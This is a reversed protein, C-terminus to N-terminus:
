SLRTVKFTYSGIDILGPAGGSPCRFVPYVYDGATLTFTGSVTNGRYITGGTADIVAATGLLTSANKNLTLWFTSTAQIKIYTYHAEIFYDGSTDIDMCIRSNVTSSSLSTDGGYYDETPTLFAANYSTTSGMNVVSTTISNTNASWIGVSPSTFGGSATLAVWASGTNYNLKNNTSDYVVSGATDPLAEMNTNTMVPPLFAGSDDTDCEINGGTWVNLKLNGNGYNQVIATGNSAVFKATDADASDIITLGAEVLGITNNADKLVIDPTNSEVAIDGCLLTESLHLDKFTASTTGLDCVATTGPKVAIIGSAASGITMHNDTDAVASNGLAIRNLATTSSVNSSSGIMINNSSVGTAVDGALYGLVTNNQGTSNRLAFAGVVTNFSTDADRLALYGVAVNTDAITIGAGAGSGLIVNQDGTTLAAAAGFGAVLNNNGTVSTLASDTAIMNASGGTAPIRFMEAPDSNQEYAVANLTGAGTVTLTDTGAGNQVTFVDDTDAGTGRRINVAGNTTDTLIEPNVTSNNYATQLTSATSTGTLAGFKGANFFTADSTLLNTTGEQVILLGILIGSAAIGPATVFTQTFIDDQAASFSNYINQGLQATINGAPFTYFRQITYKNTGVAAGPYASGDDYINPNIDTLSGSITEDQNQYVFTGAASTDLAPITRINPNHTNTAYNSGYMFCDGVTKTFKLSGLGTFVNGSINLYGISEVLDRLQSIPEVSYDCRVDIANVVTNNLHVVTGVFINDRRNELTPLTGSQLVTGSIDISVFTLIQTAINTVAVDTKGTWSVPTQTILGTGLPDDVVVQGTGDSISFTTAVGLGGTGVLLIGGTIVGTSSNQFNIVKRELGSSDLLYLIDDAKTYLKNSGAGPNSPTTIHDTQITTTTEISNFVVDDTTNLDQDFPNNKIYYSITIDDNLSYNAVNNESEFTLNIQFWTTNNVTTTVAYLKCNSSTDCFYILDGNELTQLIPLRSDGAKNNVHISMQTASAPTANNIRYFGSAPTTTTDTSTDFQWTSTDSASGTLKTELGADDIQYMNGDTKSYICVEGAAPTSPTGGETFCLLTKLDLASQLGTTDSITLNTSYLTKSGNTKVPQNPSLNSVTLSAVNANVTGDGGGGDLFVNLVM